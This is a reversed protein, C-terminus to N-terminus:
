RVRRLGWVLGAAGLFGMCLLLSLWSVEGQPQAGSGTAALRVTSGGSGLVGGGSPPPVVVPAAAVVRIFGANFPQDHGPSFNQGCPGTDFQFIGAGFDLVANLAPISAPTFSKTTYAPFTTSGMSSKKVLVQTLTTDRVLIELAAESLTSEPGLTTLRYIQVELCVTRTTDRDNRLSFGFSFRDGVTYSTPAPKYGSTGTSIWGNVGFDKASVPLALGVGM